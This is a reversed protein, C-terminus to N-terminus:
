ATSAGSAALSGAARGSALSADALLGEPGVWDGAVYVGPADAVTAVPRGAAGQAPTPRDYAVVLQRNFRVAVVADRWGPQAADLFAELEARVAAPDATADTGYRMVHVVEGGEPALAASPTHFSLYLPEDVGFVVRREPVPITRLGLDLTAAHVPRAARAWAAVTASAGGLLEDAHSAGGTAVVVADADYAADNAAVRRRAGHHEVATAKAGTVIKVGAREAAVRLGDVLCQWGGDLYLVGDTLASVTQPVAIEAALDELDDCYTAVRAAMTVVARADAHSLQEDIWTRMSKGATETRLLRKPNALAKGLQLKARASVVPSKVLDAPTGPLLGIEGRYRGYGRLPPRKGRPEVGLERLVGIGGRGAYLAHPGQNFLFGGEVTATRARGGEHERAELLTVTAGARAATAAATLGALGGGIVVIQNGSM